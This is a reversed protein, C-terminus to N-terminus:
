RWISDFSPREGCSAAGSDLLISSHTLQYPLAVMYRHQDIMIDTRGPISSHHKILFYILNQLLDTELDGLSILDLEDFDPCILIMNMKEDLRYRGITRGLDDPDHLTQCGAFDEFSCWFHFAFQPTAFEPCITVIHVCDASISAFLSHAVTLSLPNGLRLAAWVYWM